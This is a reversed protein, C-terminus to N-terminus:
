IPSKIFLMNKSMQIWVEKSNMAKNREYLPHQADKGAQYEAVVTHYLPETAWTKLCCICETVKTFCLCTIPSVCSIYETSRKVLLLCTHTAGFYFFFFDFIDVFRITNTSCALGNMLQVSSHNYSKGKNLSLSSYFKVSTLRTLVNFGHKPQLFFFFFKHRFNLWDNSM